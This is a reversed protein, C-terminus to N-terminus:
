NLVEPGRLSPHSGQLQSLRWFGRWAPGWCLSDPHPGRLAGPGPNGAARGGGGGPGKEWGSLGSPSLSVSFASFSSVFAAWLLGPPGYFPMFTLRAPPRPGGFGWKERPRLLSGLTRLQGQIPGGEQWGSLIPNPGQRQPAPHMAWRGASGPFLLSPPPLRSCGPQPPPWSHIRDRPVLVPVGRRPAPRTGRSSPGQFPTPIPHSTHTRPWGRCRPPELSSTSSLPTPPGEPSPDQLGRWSGSRGCLTVSTQAM